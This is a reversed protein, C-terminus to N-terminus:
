LKEIDEIIVDVIKTVDMFRDKVREIVESTLNDGVLYSEYYCDQLKFCLGTTHLIDKSLNLDRLVSSIGKVLNPSFEELKILIKKINNTSTPFCSIKIVDERSIYILLYFDEKMVENKIEDPIISNGFLQEKSIILGVSIKKKEDENKIEM